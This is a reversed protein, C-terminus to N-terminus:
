VSNYKIGEREEERQTKQTRKKSKGDKILENWRFYVKNKIDSMLFRHKNPFKITVNCFFCSLNFTQTNQKKWKSRPSLVGRSCLAFIRSFFQWISRYWCGAAVVHIVDYWKILQPPRKIELSNPVCLLLKLLKQVTYFSRQKNSQSLSHFWSADADDDYPKFICDFKFFFVIEM